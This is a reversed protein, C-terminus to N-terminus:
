NTDALKKEIRLLADRIEVLVESESASAASQPPASRDATGAALADRQALVAARFGQTDEIGILSILSAGAASSQGATEVRLGAVGVRRMIPGQFYALDTIKELPVATEVRNLLGQRVELKTRTLEVSKRRLIMPHILGVVIWIIPVVLIGVISAAAAISGSTQWYRTTKPDFKAERLTADPSAHMM